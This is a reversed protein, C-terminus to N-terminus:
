FFLLSCLLLAVSPWVKEVALPLYLGRKMRIRMELEGCHPDTKIKDREM